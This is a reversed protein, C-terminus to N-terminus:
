SKGNREAYYRCMGEILQSLAAEITPGSGDFGGDCTIAHWYGKDGQTGAVDVHWRLEPSYDPGM